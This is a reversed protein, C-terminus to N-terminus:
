IAYLPQYAVFSLWVLISNGIAVDDHKKNPRFFISVADRCLLLVGRDFIRSIVNSCRIGLSSGQLIPSHPILYDGITSIGYFVVLCFCFLDLRYTFQYEIVFRCSIPKKIHRITLSSSISHKSNKM